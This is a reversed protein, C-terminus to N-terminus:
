SKKEIFKSLQGLAKSFNKYRQIWRIDKKAMDVEPLIKDIHHLLKSTVCTFLSFLFLCRSRRSGIQRFMSRDM